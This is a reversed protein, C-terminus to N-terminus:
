IGATQIVYFGRPHRYGREHAHAVASAIDQYRHRSVLYWRIVHVGCLWHALAVTGGVCHSGDIRRKPERSVGFYVEGLDHNVGRYVYHM